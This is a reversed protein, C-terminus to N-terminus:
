EEELDVINIHQEAMPELLETSKRNVIKAATEVGSYSAGSIGHATISAGCLYLNKIETEARYAGLGVQRTNKETGYINGITSNVYFANSLPTGLERMVINKGIGPLIEELSLIFKDMIKEKLELYEKSDRKGEFKKFRKYESFALVELTHHKGNFHAPDKLTTCSVFFSPFGRPTSYDEHLLEDFIEDANKNKGKMVWINGTDLGVKRVDMEVTLFLILSSTSYTTHNLKNRLKQSLNNAGVMDFFTKGPDANSVVRKAFIQEGNELEVGIATKKQHEDLLIQKVRQGTVIQGEYKKIAKLSARVIAGAGGRPYFGGHFYHYMVGCHIIFSAKGPPLGHDGFQINIVKKLVRDNIFKNCVSKVTRSHHMLLHRVKWLNVIKAGLGNLKSYLQIERGITQVLELYKRIGEKEHPFFNSLSNVLANFENPFDYRKGDILAHEYASPNMRYFVLDNALGLGKYLNYLSGGKNLGGVYHLGPSFRYGKLSFSQCWGGPLKHQEIILVKQGARALCLAASLGGVGSGIVITDLNEKVRNLKINEKM